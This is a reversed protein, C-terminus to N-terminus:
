YMKETVVSSRLFSNQILILSEEELFIDKKM